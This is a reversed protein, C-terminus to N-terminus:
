RTREISLNLLQQLPLLSLAFYLCMSMEPSLRAVSVLIVLYGMYVSLLKLKVWYSDAGTMTFKDCPRAILYVALLSSSVAAVVTVSKSIRPFHKEGLSMLPIFAHAALMVTAVMKAAPNDATRQLSAIAVFM